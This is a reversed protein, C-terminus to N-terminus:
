RARPRRSTRRGLPGREESRSIMIVPETIVLARENKLFRSLDAESWSQQQGHKRKTVKQMTKVLEEYESYLSKDTEMERVNKTYRQGVANWWGVSSDSFAHWVLATNLRRSNLLAGLDEFFDLVDIVTQSPAEGVLNEGAVLATALRKRRARVDASDWATTFTALRDTRLGDRVGNATSVALYITAGALAWTPFVSKDLFADFLWQRVDKNSFANLVWNGVESWWSM